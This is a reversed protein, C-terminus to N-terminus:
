SNEVKPSEHAGSVLYRLPSAGATPSPAESAVRLLLSTTGMAQMSDPLSSCVIVLKFQDHYTRQAHSVYINKTQYASM